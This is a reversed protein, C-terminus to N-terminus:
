AANRQALLKRKVTDRMRQGEEPTFLEGRASEELGEEIMVSIEERHERLYLENEHLATLRDELYAQVTEFGSSHADEKVIAELESTLTIAM